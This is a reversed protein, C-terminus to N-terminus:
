LLQQQVDCLADLISVPLQGSLVADLGRVVRCNSTQINRASHRRAIQHTLEPVALKPKGALKLGRCSSLLLMMCWTCVGKSLCRKRPTAEAGLQSKPLILWLLMGVLKERRPPSVLLLHRYHLHRCNHTCAPASSVPGM